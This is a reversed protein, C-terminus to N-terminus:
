YSLSGSVGIEGASVNTVSFNYFGQEQINILYVRYFVEGGNELWGRDQSDNDGYYMVQLRESAGGAVVVKFQVFTNSPIYARWTVGEANKLSVQPLSIDSYPTVNNENMQVDNVDIVTIKTAIFELNNANYPKAMVQSIGSNFIFTLSLVLSLLKNKM